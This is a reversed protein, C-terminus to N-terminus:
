TLILLILFILYFNLYSILFNASESKPRKYVLDPFEDKVTSKCDSASLMAGYLGRFYHEATSENKCKKSKKIVCTLWEGKLRCDTLNSIQPRKEGPVMEPPFEFTKLNEWDKFKHEKLCEELSDNISNMCKGGRPSKFDRFTKKHDLCQFQYGANYEDIKNNYFNHGDKSALCKSISKYYRRYCALDALMHQCKVEVYKQYNPSEPPLPQVPVQCDTLRENLLKLSTQYARLCEPDVEQVGHVLFKNIRRVPINEDKKPTEEKKNASKLTPTPLKISSPKTTPPKSPTEEKRVKKVTSTPPKSSPKTTEPVKAIKNKTKTSKKVSEKTTMESNLTVDSDTQQDDLDKTRYRTNYRHLPKLVPTSKDLKKSKQERKKKQKMEASNSGDQSMLALKTKESRRKGVKNLINDMSTDSTSSEERDSTTNRDLSVDYSNENSTNIGDRDSTTDRDLSLNNLNENSMNIEEMKSCSDRLINLNQENEISKNIEEMKSSDHLFNLNQENENLINIEEVKSCSDQLINLNQENENSIEVVKLSSKLFNLDLVSDNANNTELHSCIESMLSFPKSSDNPSHNARPLSPINILSCKQEEIIVDNNSIEEFFVENQLEIEDNARNSNDDHLSSSSSNFDKSVSYTENLDSIKEIISNPSNENDLCLTQDIQLNAVSFSLELHLSDDSNDEETHQLNTVDNEDLIQTDDHPPSNSSYNFYDPHM